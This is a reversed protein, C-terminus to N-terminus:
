PDSFTISSGNSHPLYFNWARVLMKQIKGTDPCTDTWTYQDQRRWPTWTATSAPIAWYYSGDFPTGEVLLVDDFLINGATRTWDIQIQLDDQAMNRYWCGQGVASPVTTVTWGTQGSVTVTTSYSGMRLVLTGSAAGVARNWVIALIYPRDSRLKNGRVSLKQTLTTSVNVQLAYSTGNVLSPAVRFYNTSDFAFNTSNVTASATWDTISTPAAATGGGISDFSANSVLSDDPTLGTLIAELGSGSRNLEDRTRAQGMLQFVEAGRSTGTQYDAVCLARKSDIHQAEIPFNYSDTTLRIIQGNGVPSGSAAPSGFTFNRSQVRLTNDIFYKWLEALMADDSGLDTRGIVSKLYQKLFPRFISRLTAPELVSNVNSRVAQSARTLDDLFDGELSQELTDLMGLLNKANSQGFKRTEEVIDVANAWQTQIEARTPNAM